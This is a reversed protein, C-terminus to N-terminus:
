YFNLLGSNWSNPVPSFTRRSGKEDGTIHKACWATFESLKDTNPVSTKYRFGYSTDALITCLHLRRDPEHALFHKFAALLSPGPPPLTLAVGRAPKQFRVM